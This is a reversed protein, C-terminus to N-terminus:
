GLFVSSKWDVERDLNRQGLKPFCSYLPTQKGLIDYHKIAKLHAKFSSVSTRKKVTDTALVKSDSNNLEYGVLDV